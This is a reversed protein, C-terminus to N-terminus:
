PGQCEPDDLGKTIEAWVADTALRENEGLPGPNGERRRTCHADDHLALTAGYLMCCPDLPDQYCDHRARAWWAAEQALRRDLTLALWGRWLTFLALYFFILSLPWLPTATAVLGWVALGLTCLFLMWARKLHSTM